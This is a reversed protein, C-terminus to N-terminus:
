GEPHTRQKGPCTRHEVRALESNMWTMECYSAYVSGVYLIILMHFQIEQENGERKRDPFEREYM